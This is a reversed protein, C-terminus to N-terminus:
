SIIPERVFHPIVAPLILIIEVFGKYEGDIVWPSQYILKRIGNKETTYVNTGRTEMLEKLKASAKEPHCDFLNSGILDKGGMESFNRAAVDNMEIIKGQTDCVTIAGEFEMVWQNHKM